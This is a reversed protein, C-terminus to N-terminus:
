HVRNDPVRMEHAPRAPEDAGPGVQAGSQSLYETIKFRVWKLRMQPKVRKLSFEFSIM